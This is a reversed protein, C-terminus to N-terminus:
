LAAYFGNVIYKGTKPVKWSYTKGWPGCISKVYTDGAGPKDKAMKYIDISNRAQFVIVSGKSLKMVKASPSKWKGGDVKYRINAKGDSFNNFALYYGGIKKYYLSRNRLHKQSVVFNRYAKNGHMFFAFCKKGNLEITDTSAKVAPYSKNSLIAKAESAAKQPGTSAYGPESGVAIGALALICCLLLMSTMGTAMKIYKRTKNM